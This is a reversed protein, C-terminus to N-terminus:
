EWSASQHGGWGCDAKIQQCESIEVKLHFIFEGLVLRSDTHCAPNILHWSSMQIHLTLCLAGRIVKAHSSSIPHLYIFAQARAAASLQIFSALKIGSHIAGCRHGLAHTNYDSLLLHLSNARPCSCPLQGTSFVEKMCHNRESVWFCKILIFFQNYLASPIYFLAALSYFSTLILILHNALSLTSSSSRGACLRM